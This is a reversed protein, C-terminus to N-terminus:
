VINDGAIDVDYSASNNINAEIFLDMRGPDHPDTNQVTEPYGSVIKTDDTIFMKYCKYIVYNICCMAICGIAIGM